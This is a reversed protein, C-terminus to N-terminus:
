ANYIHTHAFEIVIRPLPQLLIKVLKQHNALLAVKCEEMKLSSTPMSVSSLAVTFVKM